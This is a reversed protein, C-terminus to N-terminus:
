TVPRMSARARRAGEVMGTEIPRPLKTELEGEPLIQATGRHIWDLQDDLPPFTMSVPTM